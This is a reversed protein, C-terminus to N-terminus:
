HLCGSHYNASISISTLWWAPEVFLSPLSGKHTWVWVLSIINFSVCISGYMHCFPNLFGKLSSLWEVIGVLCRKFHRIEGNIKNVSKWKNLDGLFIFIVRYSIAWNILNISNVKLSHILFEERHFCIRNAMWFCIHTCAHITFMRFM